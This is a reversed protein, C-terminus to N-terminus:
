KLSKLFPYDDEERVPKNQLKPADSDSDSPLYRMEMDMRKSTAELLPLLSSQRAKTRFLRLLQTMVVRQYSRSQYNWRSVIRRISHMTSDTVRLGSQLSIFFRSEFGDDSQKTLVLRFYRTLESMSIRVHKLFNVSSKYDKLFERTEQNYKGMILHLFAYIENKAAIWYNFNLTVDGRLYARAMDPSEYKLIQIGLMHMFLLDTIDKGNYFRLSYRGEPFLKAENLEGIFELM